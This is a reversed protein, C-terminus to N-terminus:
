SSGEAAHPVLHFNIEKGKQDSVKVKWSDNEKVYVINQPFDHMNNHFILSDPGSPMLLFNVGEVNSQSDMRVNYLFEENIFKVKLHEIRITDTGSMVYGIGSLTSEGTQEWQEYFISTDNSLADKWSGILGKVQDFGPAVRTISEETQVPPETSPEREGDKCAVLLVLIYLPLILPKM